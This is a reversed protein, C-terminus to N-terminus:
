SSHAPVAEPLGCAKGVCAFWRAVADDDADDVEISEFLQNGGSWGLWQDLQRGFACYDDYSSDGLALVAYNLNLLDARETMVTEAFEIAQEPPDGQGATSAIFLARSCQKLLTVDLADIPLLNVVQGLDDLRSATQKALTEAFGTETAYIVLVPLERNQSGQVVAESQKTDAVSGIARATRNRQSTVRTSHLCSWLLGLYAMSICVAVWLRDESPLSTWWTGNTWWAFSMAVVALSTLAIVNVLRIVSQVQM